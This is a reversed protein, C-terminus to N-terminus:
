ARSPAYNPSSALKEVEVPKRAFFLEYVLAGAVLLAVGLLGWAAFGAVGGFISFAWAQNLISRLTEGRFATQVMGDKKAKLDPDKEARAESSLVSYPKGNDIDRIHVGLYAEAFVHAQDGTLAQQGEYKRLSDIFPILDTYKENIETITAEMREGAPLVIKQPELQSRIQSETFSAGWFMAVSMAVLVVVMVVQLSVIRWKMERNM